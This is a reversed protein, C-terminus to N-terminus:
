QEGRGQASLLAKFSSLNDDQEKLWQWVPKVIHFTGRENIWATVMRVSHGRARNQLANQENVKRIFNLMNTRAQIRAADVRLQETQYNLAGIVSVADQDEKWQLKELRETADVYASRGHFYVVADPGLQLERSYHREVTNALQPTTNPDILWVHRPPMEDPLYDIERNMQYRMMKLTHLEHVGAGASLLVVISALPRQLASDILNTSWNYYCSTEVPTGVKCGGIVHVRQTEWPAEHLGVIQNDYTGNEVPFMDSDNTQDGEASPDDFDVQYRDGCRKRVTGLKRVQVSIIRLVYCKEGTKWERVTAVRVNTPGETIQYFPLLVDNHRDESTVPFMESPYVVREAAHGEFNVKYSYSHPVVEIDVLESTVTGMRKQYAKHPQLVYFREGEMWPSRDPKSGVSVGVSLLERVRVSAAATSAPQRRRSSMM